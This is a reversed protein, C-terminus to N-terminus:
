LNTSKLVFFRVVIAESLSGTSINTVDIAASGDAARANLVYKGPTGGSAHNLVLIDASRIKDNTMVFSVIADAALAANNMTIAGCMKDLTVGTSKSTLQTVLGGAGPGYGFSRLLLAQALALPSITDLLGIDVLDQFTVASAAKPVRQGTLVEVNNKIAQSVARLSDPDPQPEPISAYYKANSAAM